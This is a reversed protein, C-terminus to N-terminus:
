VIPQLSAAYCCRLRDIAAFLAGYKSGCRVGPIRKSSKPQPGQEIETAGAASTAGPSNSRRPGSDSQEPACGLCLPQEQRSLSLKLATPYKPPASTSQLNLM